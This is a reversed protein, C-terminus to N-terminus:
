ATHQGIDYATFTVKHRMKIHLCIQKNRRDLIKLFTQARLERYHVRGIIIFIFLAIRLEFRETVALFIYYPEDSEPHCVLLNGVPQTQRYMSDSGMPAIETRFEAYMRRGSKRNKGYKM